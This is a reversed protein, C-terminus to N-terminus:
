GGFPRDAGTLIRLGTAITGLAVGLLIGRAGAGALDQSLVSKLGPIFFGFIPGSGLLVLFAFFVFIISSLNLRRNLLRVTAYALSVTLVAMLSTEVPVQIYNFFWSTIEGDPDILTIALTIVLSAILVFSYLAGKSGERIKGLHVAFLNYIGLLLAFAALLVATKLFEIQLDKLVGIPFFYGLLVLLGIAIAVATSIPAKLNLKVPM